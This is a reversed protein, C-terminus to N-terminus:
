FDYSKPGGTLCIKCFNPFSVKKEYFRLFKQGHLFNWIYLIKQDYLFNQIYLIKQVHLLIVLAVAIKLFCQNTNSKKPERLESKAMSASIEM